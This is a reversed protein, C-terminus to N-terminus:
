WSVRGAMLIEVLRSVFARCDEDSLDRITTEARHWGALASMMTRAVGEADRVGHGAANGSEGIVTSLEGVVRAYGQNIFEEALEPFRNSETLILRDFAVVEPHSMGRLMAMGFRNLYIHIDVENAPPPPSDPNWAVLRDAVVARFLDAKTSYRAYLTGKSMGTEAAVAEMSTNAYGNELFLQKAVLVITKEIKAVQEQTPRGRRPVFPGAAPAQDASLSKKAPM